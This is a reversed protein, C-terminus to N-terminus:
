RKRRFDEDTVVCFDKRIGGLPECVVICPFLDQRVISEELTLETLRGEGKLYVKTFPEKYAPTEGTGGLNVRKFKVASKDSIQFKVIKM